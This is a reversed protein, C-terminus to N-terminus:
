ADFVMRVIDVGLVFFGTGLQISVGYGCTPCLMM